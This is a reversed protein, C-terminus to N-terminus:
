LRYGNTLREAPLLGQEDYYRLARTSVGTTRALEGIRMGNGGAPEPSSM